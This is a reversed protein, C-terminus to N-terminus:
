KNAVIAYFHTNPWRNAESPYIDFVNMAKYGIKNLISIEKDIHRYQAYYYKQQEASFGDVTVDDSVGFQNKIILKGGQKLFCFYRKYIEIAASLKKFFNLSDNNNM